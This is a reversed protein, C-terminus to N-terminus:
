TLPPCRPDEGQKGRESPRGRLFLRCGLYLAMVWFGLDRVMTWVTGGGAELSTSFCGCHIDLGRAANFALAGLFVTFLAGSLLVTGYLWWGALLFLGLLLETWPLIIATLNVLSSPLIQYNHIIRAFPAPHLIKDASAAFFVIGLSIRIVIFPVKSASPS